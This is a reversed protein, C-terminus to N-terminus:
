RGRDLRKTWYWWNGAWYGIAPLAVMVWAVIDWPPEPRDTLLSWAMAPLVLHIFVLTFRQTTAVWGFFSNYKKM